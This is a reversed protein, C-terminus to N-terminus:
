SIIHYMISYKEHRLVCKKLTIIFDFVITRVYMQEIYRINRHAQSLRRNHSFKQYDSTAPFKTFTALTAFTSLRWLRHSKQTHFDRTIGFDGSLRLNNKEITPMQYTKKKSRNRFRM